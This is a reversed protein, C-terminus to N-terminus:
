VGAALLSEAAIRDLDRHDIIAIEGKGIRRALDKTRVGVRAVGTVHVSSRHRSSRRTRLRLTPRGPVLRM